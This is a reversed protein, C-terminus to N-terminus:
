AGPCIIISYKSNLPSNVLPINKINSNDTSDQKDKYQHFVPPVPKKVRFFGGTHFLFNLFITFLIEVISLVM